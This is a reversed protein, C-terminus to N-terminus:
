FAWHGFTFKVAFVALFMLSWVSVVAFWIFRAASARAFLIFIPFMILAYRPTSIVYSTSIVLLLNLTIWISYSPRLRFWSWVTCALALGIFFLEQFGAMVAYEPEKDLLAGWVHAFGASPVALHKLWGEELLKNFAFFDGTVRYNLCLYIGFGCPILALWLWRMNWRKTVRFQEWAEMAVVPALILGNFRTLAAAAGLIGVVPWRDTRAALLCGLALALFLSETYAIHLFYSTPFILLFWVAYRAVEDGFDRRALEHLLLGAVVSAIASILIATVHYNGFLFAGTRVLWPYLPYFVLSWKEDGITTYGHEAIGLYRIADWRKWIELWDCPKNSLSKFAVFAFGFLFAKVFLIFGVTTWDINRLASLRFKSLVLGLRSLRQPPTPHMSSQKRRGAPGASFYYFPPVQAPSVFVTVDAVICPNLGAM